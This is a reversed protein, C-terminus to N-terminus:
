RLRRIRSRPACLNMGPEIEGPTSWAVDHRRDALSRAKMRLLREGLAGSVNELWDLVDDWEAAAAFKARLVRVRPHLLVRKIKPIEADAPLPLQVITDTDEFAVRARITRSPESM